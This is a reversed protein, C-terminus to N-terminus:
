PIRIHINPKHVKYVRTSVYLRSGLHSIFHLPRRPANLFIVASYSAAVLNLFRHAHLSQLKREDRCWHMSRLQIGAHRNRPSHFHEAGSRCVDQSRSPVCGAASSKLSRCIEVKAGAPSVLRRTSERRLLRNVQHRTCCRPPRLIAALKPPEPLLHTLGRM